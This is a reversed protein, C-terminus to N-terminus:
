CSGSPMPLAQPLSQVAGETPSAPSPWINQWRNRGGISCSSGQRHETCPTPACSGGPNSLWPQVATVRCPLASGLAQAALGRRWGLRPCTCHLAPLPHAAGRLRVQQLYLGEIQPPHPASSHEIPTNSSSGRDRGWSGFPALLSCPALTFLKLVVAPPTVQM